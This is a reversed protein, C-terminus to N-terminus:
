AAERAAQQNILQMRVLDPLRYPRDCTGCVMVVKRNDVPVEPVDPNPPRAPPMFLPAGCEVVESDGVWRQRMEVCRGVPRDRPDGAAKRLQEVLEALFTAIVGAQPHATLAAVHAHLWGALGEVGGATVDGNPLDPGAMALHDWLGSAVNALAVEVSRAQGSPERMPRTTDPKDTGALVGYWVDVVPDPRSRTDRMTVVHLNCPPKSGFGPARRDSSGSVGPTADLRAFYVPISAPVQSDRDGENDPDLAATVARIHDWCLLRDVAAPQRCRHCLAQGNVAVEPPASV